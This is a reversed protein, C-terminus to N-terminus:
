FKHFLMKVILSSASIQLFLFFPPTRFCRDLYSEQTVPALCIPCPNPNPDSAPPEAANRGDEAMSLQWLRDSVNHFFM